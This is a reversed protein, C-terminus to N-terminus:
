VSMLWDEQQKHQGNQDVPTIYYYAETAKTEFPGPTDMSATSTERAYQPTEKVQVRVESPMTVIKKDVLFQRISDLTKRAYPILDQQRLINKKWIM